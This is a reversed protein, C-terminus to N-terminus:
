IKDPILPYDNPLEKPYEIDIDVVFGKSSNTTYKNLNFEEPDIWNFGTTPLFKSMADGYLNSADVYLIHKKKKKPDYSKM